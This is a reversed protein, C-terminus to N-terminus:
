LNIEMRNHTKIYFFFIIRLIKKQTFFFLEPKVPSFLVIYIYIFIFCLQNTFTKDIIDKFSGSIMKKKKCVM